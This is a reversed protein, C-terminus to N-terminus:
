VCCQEPLVEFRTWVMRRNQPEVHLPLAKGILKKAADAQARTEIALLMTSAKLWM